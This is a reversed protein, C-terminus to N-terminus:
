RASSILGNKILALADDVSTVCDSAVEQSLLQPETDDVTTATMTVGLRGDALEAIQITYFEVAARVERVAPM